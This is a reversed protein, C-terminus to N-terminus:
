TWMRLTPLSTRTLIASRTWFARATSRRVAAPRSSASKGPTAAQAAAMAPRAPLAMWTVYDGADDALERDFHRIMLSQVAFIKPDTEATRILEELWQPEAFADNNFLVM